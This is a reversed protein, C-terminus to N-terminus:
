GVVDPLMPVVLATNMFATYSDNKAEPADNVAAITAPLSWGSAAVPDDFHTRVRYTFSQGNPLEEPDILANRHVSSTGAVDQYSSDPAGVSKKQVQYYVVHGVTSATWRLELRHYLSTFPAAATCGAAGVICARLQYPRARGGGKSGDYTLEPT